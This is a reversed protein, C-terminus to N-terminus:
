LAPIWLIMEIVRYNAPLLNQIRPVTEIDLGDKWTHLNKDYLNDWLWKMSM